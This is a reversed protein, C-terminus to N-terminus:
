TDRFTKLPNRSSTTYGEVWQKAIARAAAEDGNILAQRLSRTAAAVEFESLMDEDSAFIKKHVTGRLNGNISLEEVLKEGPRLGTFAIEIDGDPNEKERVTYGANEIMQRALKEIQVPRGMDLVFVEGGEAMAGARLVLTVAEQVTM